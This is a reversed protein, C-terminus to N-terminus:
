FTPTSINHALICYARLKYVGQAAIPAEADNPHQVRSKVTATVQTAAGYPTIGETTVSVSTAHSSITVGDTALVDTGSQLVPVLTYLFAVDSPDATIPICPGTSQINLTVDAYYGPVEETPTGKTAVTFEDSEVIFATPSEFVVKRIADEIGSADFTKGDILDKLGSDQTGAMQADLTAIDGENTTALSHAADAVDSVAKLSADIQELPTNVDNAINIVAENDIETWNYNTTAM